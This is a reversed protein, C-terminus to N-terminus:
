STPAKGITNEVANIFFTNFLEVLKEENDVFINKDKISIYDDSHVNKNTFLPKVADWFKRNTTM